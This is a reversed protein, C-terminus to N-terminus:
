SWTHERPPKLNANSREEPNLEPNNYRPLYFEEM